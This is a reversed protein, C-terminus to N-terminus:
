TTMIKELPSGKSDDLMVASMLSEDWYQSTISVFPDIYNPNQTIPIPKYAHMSKDINKGNRFPISVDDKDRCLESLIIGYMQATLGYDNGNLNISEDFYEHIVDYSITNTIKATIFMLRFFEEVNEIGEPVHVTHVVQDGKNFILLRYDSDDFVKDSPSFKKNLEMGSVKNQTESPKCMFMTPFRFPKLKGLMKSTKSVRAYNFVGILQYMQGYETACKTEFFKEPIIYYLQGDENYILSDNDRKLFPPVKYNAM